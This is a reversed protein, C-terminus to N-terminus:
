DDNGNKLASELLKRAEEMGTRDRLSAYESPFVLGALEMHPRNSKTDFENLIIAFRHNNELRTNDVVPFNFYDLEFSREVEVELGEISANHLSDLTTGDTFDNKIDYKSPSGKYIFVTVNASKTCHDINSVTVDLYRKVGQFEILRAETMMERYIKMGEESKLLDPLEDAKARTHDNIYFNALVERQPWSFGNRHLTTTCPLLIKSKLEDLPIDISKSVGHPGLSAAQTSAVRRALSYLRNRLEGRDYKFTPKENDGPEIKGLDRRFEKFLPSLSLSDGFNLSLLELRLMQKSAGDLSNMQTRDKARLLFSELTQAFVDKRLESEAQERHIQLQTILRASEQNNSIDTLTYNSVYGAWAILLGAIIPTLVKTGIEIWDHKNPNENRM